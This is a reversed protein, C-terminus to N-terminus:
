GTTRAADKREKDFLEWAELDEKSIWVKNPDNHRWAGHWKGGPFKFKVEYVKVSKTKRRTMENGSWSNIYTETGDDVTEHYTAGSLHTCGELKGSLRAMTVAMKKDAAQALVFNKRNMACWPDCYLEGKYLVPEERAPACYLRQLPYKRQVFDGEEHDWVMDSGRKPFCDDIRAGCQCEFWWGDRWLILDNLGEPGYQDFQPARSCEVYDWEGDAWENAGARRAVAHHAAFVIGGTYEDCELVKYAKLPAPSGDKTKSRVVLCNRSM